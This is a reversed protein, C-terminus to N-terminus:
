WLAISDFLHSGSVCCICFICCCQRNHYFCCRYCCFNCVMKKFPVIAMRIPLFFSWNILKLEKSIPPPFRFFYAFYQMSRITYTPICEMATYLMEMKILIWRSRCQERAWKSLRKSLVCIFRAFTFTNPLFAHSNLPCQQAWAIGNVNKSIEIM